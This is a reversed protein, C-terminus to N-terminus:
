NKYGSGVATVPLELGLEPVQRAIWAIFTTSYRPTLSTPSRVGYVSDLLEPSLLSTFRGCM